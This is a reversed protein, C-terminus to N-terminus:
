INFEIMSKWSIVKIFLCSAPNAIAPQYFLVLSWKILFISLLNLFVKGSLSYTFFCLWFRVHLRAGMSQVLSRFYIKNLYHSMKLSKQNRRGQCCREETDKVVCNLLIYSNLPPYTLGILGKREREWVGRAIGKKM